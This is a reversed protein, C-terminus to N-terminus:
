GAVKGPLDGRGPQNRISTTSCAALPSAPRCAWASHHPELPWREGHCVRTAAYLWHKLHLIPQGAKLFNTNKAPTGGAIPRSFIPPHDVPWEFAQEIFNRVDAYVRARGTEISFTTLQLEQLSQNRKHVGPIARFLRRAPDNTVVWDRRACLVQTPTAIAGADAELRAAGDFLQILQDLAIQKSILPDQDYARIQEPDHTLASGRVYSPVAPADIGLWACVMQVGKLAQLAFPIYLKISLAPTALVLARVRPAFDHVWLGAVVASM